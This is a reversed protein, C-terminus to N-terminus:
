FFSREYCKHITTILPFTFGSIGNFDNQDITWILTGGYGEDKIFDMKFQISEVYEYGIWNVGSVAYPVQGESDWHRKWGGGEVLPCIQFM